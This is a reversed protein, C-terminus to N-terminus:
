PGLQWIVAHGIGAADEAGGTMQGRGNINGSLSGPGGLTPLDVKGGALTWLFAHQVSDATVYTGTVRGHGDIDFATSSVGGFTGMDIMGTAESWYFGHAPCGPCPEGFGVVERRENISMATTSAGLTGLDTITGDRWWAIAHLVFPPPPAVTSTGVIDGAENIGRAMSSPGGLPPIPTVGDQRSWRFGTPPGTIASFSGVVVGRENIDDARGNAFPGLELIQVGDRSVTWVVPHRQAPWPAAGPKQAHGIIMGRNNLGVAQSGLGGLTGLDVAGARPSWFVARPHSLGTNRQGAVEGGDNIAFGAGHLAGFTGLDTLSRVYTHPTASLEASPPSRPAAPNDQVCGALILALLAFISSYRTTRPM